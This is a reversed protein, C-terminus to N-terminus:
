KEECFGGEVRRQEFILGADDFILEDHFTSAFLNSKLVHELDSHLRM